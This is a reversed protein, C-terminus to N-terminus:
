NKFRMETRKSRRYSNMFKIMVKEAILIWIGSSNWKQKEKTRMVISV